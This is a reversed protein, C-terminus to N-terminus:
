RESTDSEEREHGGRCGMAGEGEAGGPPWGRYCLATCWIYLRTATEMKEGSFVFHSIHSIM